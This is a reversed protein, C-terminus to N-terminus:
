PQHTVCWDLDEYGWTKLHSGSTLCTQPVTSLSDRRIAGSSGRYSVWRQCCNALGLPELQGKLVAVNGLILPLEIWGRINSAHEVFPNATTTANMM